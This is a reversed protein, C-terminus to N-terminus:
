RKETMKVIRMYVSVWQRYKVIIESPSCKIYFSTRDIKQM